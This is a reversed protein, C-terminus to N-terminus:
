VRNSFCIEKKSSNRPRKGGFNPFLASILLNNKCLNLMDFFSTLSIKFSCFTSFFGYSFFYNVFVLYISYICKKVKEKFLFLTRQNDIIFCVPSISKTINFM